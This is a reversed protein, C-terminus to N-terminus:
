GISAPNALMTKGGAGIITNAIANKRNDQRRRRNM